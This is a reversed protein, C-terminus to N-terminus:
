MTKKLYRACFGSDTMILIEADANAADLALLAKRFAFSPLDVGCDKWMAILKEVVRDGDSAMADLEKQFSDNLVTRVNGGRTYLVYVLPGPLTCPYEKMPEIAEEAIKLLQTYTMAIVGKIM